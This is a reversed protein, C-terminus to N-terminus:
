RRPPDLWAALEAKVAAHGPEGALNRWEGPDSAHDYLEEGGGEYRIYRWRDSRVARSRGWTTRAPRPRPAEPDRLLPVLSEGELQAPPPLGCLEVLTPFLDILGVARECRTGPRGVGPACIVLPVRTSEEWLTFKHWRRKEGLHLGHDSWFVVVTREWASDRDLADGLEGVLDDVFSLAALYARVAARAAGLRGAIRVEYERGPIRREAEAPLDALEDGPVAPLVVEDLSHREFFERPLRWPPHPQGFGVGLFLPRTRPARLIELAADLMRQDGMASRPVDLPGWDFGYPFELGSLPGAPPAPDKWYPLDRDWSRPDPVHFVKGLGVTEYGAARFHAPLTVADPAVDRLEGPQGAGARGGGVLGVSEPWMGTLVSARSSKCSVGQAHANTFTVGREALRAVNSAGLRGPYGGLPPLWDNLDDASLFIVDPPTRRGRGEGLCAGALAGGTAALLQRRTLLPSAM